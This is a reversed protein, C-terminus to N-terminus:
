LENLLKTLDEIAKQIDSKTINGNYIPTNFITLTPTVNIYNIPHVYGIGEAIHEVEIVSSKAFKSIAHALILSNKLQMVNPDIRQMFKDYLNRGHETLDKTTINIDDYCNPVINAIEAIHAKTIIADFNPEVYAVVDGDAVFNIVDKYMESIYKAHALGNPDESDAYLSVTLNCYKAFFLVRTITYDFSIMILIKKHSNLIFCISM